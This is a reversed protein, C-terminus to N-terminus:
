FSCLRLCNDDYKFVSHCFSKANCFGMVIYCMLSLSINWSILIIFLCSANCMGGFINTYLIKFLFPPLINERSWVWTKRRGSCLICLKLIYTIGDWSLGICLSPFWIKLKLFYRLFKKQFSIVIFYWWALLRL